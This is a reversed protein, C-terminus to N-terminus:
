SRTIRRALRDLSSDSVRRAFPEGYATQLAIAIALWFAGGAAGALVDSLYHVGLYLRSFCVLSVLTTTATILALRARRTRLRSWALYALAGYVATSIMAHGSPFSYTELHVFAVEPRPRHFTLKLILNLLEAGVLVLPLLAADVLQRRRYLVVCILAGIAVAAAPSGIDTVVRFFDTGVANRHGALWRAFSLDWRALPDNTLYDEAVRAFAVAAIAAAALALALHRQKPERWTTEVVARVRLATRRVRGHERRTAYAAAARGM